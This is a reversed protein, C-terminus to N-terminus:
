NLGFIISAVQARTVYQGPWIRGDYGSVVGQAVLTKVYPLAWASVSASDAFQAALDAEAYGREQTHGIVTMVEQRTIPGTPSFSLSGDASGRGSMLGTAYVAKVAPLAWDPISAKDAFPLETDAYQATDLKLWQVMVSSFEARTMNLSPFYKTTGDPQVRGSIINQNYLYVTAEEAWHDGMDSFPESQSTAAVTVGVRKVNGSADTAKVAARHTKGDTVPLTATLKKTSADYTFSVAKGDCTVEINERDLKTDIDDSVTASLTQGTVSATVSPAQDDIFYGYGAMMQDIYITGASKGGKLNIHIGSVGDAGEPLTVTVQKWGSFDLAIEETEAAGTDTTAELSVSNGSNDGYLWFNMMSPTKSFSMTAPVTLKSSGTDGGDYALKLSKEGNHVLALDKEISANVGSLEGTSVTLTDGEFDEVREGQSVVNVTVSATKGGVSATITGSGRSMTGPTFLGNEDVTGIDGSVSWNFCQGQAVLDVNNKVASGSFQFTTGVPVSVAETIKEGTTGNTIAISDPDTVIRVEVSGYAGGGSVEVKGVGATHGATYLGDDDIEGLSDSDYSLSGPVSAPYYNTDTAKVTYQQRAGALLYQSFPYLHLGGLSGTSGGESVLLIYNGCSRLSGGSPKNITNVDSDGPYLALLATSGGGDLNVAETCGLEIMRGAEEQFTAGASHGTQRGDVTYLIVTGDSKIGFATRPQRGGTGPAVNVGRTVLKEGAGVAYAVDNWAEDANFTFTIEDGAQLEKFQALTTAYPSNAAVSLVVKGEALATAGTAETISDVVGKMTQNIRPEGETITIVANITPITAKNTDNFADTYLVVGSSATVVKNMHVSSLGYAFCLADAKINLNSRGIMASGDEMFAISTNKSSESTKIVGDQIVLSDVVGNSMTFYDANIGAVVHQGAAEAYSIVTKFGAAGYIDNGYAVVPKVRGGPTYSVYNETIKDSLATSYFVGNTLQTEWTTQINREIIQNGLSGAWAGVAGLPGVAVAAAVISAIVRRFRNSKM